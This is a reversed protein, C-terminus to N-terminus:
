RPGIYTPGMVDGITLPGEPRSIINLQTVIPGDLGRCIDYDVSKFCFPRLCKYYTLHSM